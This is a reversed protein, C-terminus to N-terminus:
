TIPPWTDPGHDKDEVDNADLSYATLMDALEVHKEAIQLQALCNAIGIHLQAIVAGRNFNDVEDTGRKIREALTQELEHLLSEARALHGAASPTPDTSM